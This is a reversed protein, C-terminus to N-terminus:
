GAYECMLGRARVLAAEPRDEHSLAPDTSTSSRRVARHFHSPVSRKRSPRYTATATPRQSWAGYTSARSRRIRRLPRTLPSPPGPRAPSTRGRAQNSQWQYSLVIVPDGTAGGDDVSLTEGVFVPEIFGIVRNDGGRIVPTHAFHPASPPSPPPPPQPTRASGVGGDLFLRVVQGPSDGSIQVDGSVVPMARPALLESPLTRDLNTITLGDGDPTGAFRCPTLGAVGSGSDDLTVVCTSLV